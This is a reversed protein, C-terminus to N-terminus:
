WRPCTTCGPTTPACTGAASSSWSPRAPRWRREARAAPRGHDAAADARDERVAHAPDGATAADARRPRHRAPQRAAAALSVGYAVPASSSTWCANRVRRARPNSTARGAKSWSARALQFAACRTSIRRRPGHRRPDHHPPLLHRDRRGPRGGVPDGARSYKAVNRVSINLFAIDYHDRRSPPPTPLIVDAHRTTENLYPDVSVMFDLSSLADNVRASNPLSLAPNGGITILARVQGEGPTEIEDVMTVAPYEGM